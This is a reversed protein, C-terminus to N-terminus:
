KIKRAQDNEKVGEKIEKRLEYIRDSLNALIIATDSKIDGVLLVSWLLSM